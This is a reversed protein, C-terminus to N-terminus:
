NLLVQCPFLIDPSEHVEVLSVLEPPIAGNRLLSAPVTMKLFAELVDPGLLSTTKAPFRPAIIRSPKMTKGDPSRLWLPVIWSRGDHEIVDVWLLENEVPFLIKEVYGNM